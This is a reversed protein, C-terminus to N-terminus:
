MEPLSGQLREVQFIEILVPNLNADFHAKCRVRVPGAYAFDAYLSEPSDTAFRYRVRRGDSLYFIGSNSRKNLSRLEGQLWIDDKTITVSESDYRFLERQNAAIRTGEVPREKEDRLEVMDIRGEELPRTLQDLDPAIARGKWIEYDRKSLQYPEDAKNFVIVGNNTVQFKQDAPKGAHKTVKIVAAISGIVAAIGTAAAGIATLQAADPLLIAILIDASSQKIGTIRLRHQPQVKLLEAVKDYAKGFGVLASVMDEVDMTGDKVEPGDYVLEYRAEIPM